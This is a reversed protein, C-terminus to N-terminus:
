IKWHARHGCATTSSGSLVLGEPIWTTSWGHMLHAPATTYNISFHTTRVRRGTRLVPGLTLPKKDVGSNHAGPLILQGLSLSDITSTSSMWRSPNLKELAAISM